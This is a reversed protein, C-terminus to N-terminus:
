YRRGPRTPQPKKSRPKRSRAPKKFGFGKLVLAVEQEIRKQPIGRDRLDPAIISFVLERAQQYSYRGTVKAKKPDNTTGGPLDAMGAKAIYQGPAAYPRVNPNKVPSGLNSRLEQRARDRATAIATANARAAAGSGSKATSPKVYKKYPVRQGNQLIPKGYKNTLYGNSASLSEDVERADLGNKAATAKADLNVQTAKIGLYARNVRAAEKQLEYDMLEQLISSHLEPGKAELQGLQGAIEADAQAAESAAKGIEINGIGIQQAPLMRAAAGFGAGEREMSAAPMQGGLAYTVDRAGEGGYADKIAQQQEVPAGGLNAAESAQAQGQQTGLQLQADAFGRGFAATEGAAGKYAGEIGPGIPELMKAGAMYFGRMDTMRAKALAAAQARQRAFEERLPGLSEEVRRSAINELAGPALPSLPDYTPRPAPKKPGGKHTRRWWRVYKAYSWGGRNKASTALWQQRTLM